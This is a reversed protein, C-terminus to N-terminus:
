SEATQRSEGGVFPAALKMLLEDGSAAFRDALRESMVGLDHLHLAAQRVVKRSRADALTELTEQSINRAYRLFHLQEIARMDAVDHDAQRRRLERRIPEGKETLQYKENWCGINDYPEIIHADLLEKKVRTKNGHLHYGNLLTEIANDSLRTM